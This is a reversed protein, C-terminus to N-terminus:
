KLKAIDNMIVMQLELCILNCHVIENTLITQNSLSQKIHM